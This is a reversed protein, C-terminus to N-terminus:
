GLTSCRANLSRYSRRSRHHSLPGTGDIPQPHGGHEDADDLQRAVESGSFRSALHSVDRDSEALLDLEM